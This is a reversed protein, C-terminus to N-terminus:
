HVVVGVRDGKWFALSKQLVHPEISFYPSRCEALLVNAICQRQESSWGCNRKSESRQTLFFFLHDYPNTFRFQSSEYNRWYHCLYAALFYCIAPRTMWILPSLEAVSRIRFDVEDWKKGRFNEIIEGEEDAEPISIEDVAPFTLSRWSEVVLTIQEPINVSIM